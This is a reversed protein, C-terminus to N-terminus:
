VSRIARESIARGYAARYEAARPAWSWDGAMANHVLARWAKRDAFVTLAEELSATFSAADYDDFSFGTGTRAEWDWPVVTDNLGGTRRVVPITGYAMSYMQNLGCPEFRSPMLFFDSGAEILHGLGIDFAKRYGVWEPHQEALATFLDEFEEAGTGVVALQARRSEILPVVSEEFLEFGKQDTLRSVVGLVPVPEAALGLEERLADRNRWKTDISERDYLYPIWLDAAPNWEDGIGNLIGVLDAEREILVGDLGMGQEPTLIERAYTPSVTTVLDAALIGTALANGTGTETPVVLVQRGELGMRPLDKLPFHGQFALNHITLITPVSAWPMGAAVAHLPLMATHFDNAHFVDPVWDLAACAAVCGATFWAYRIHDDGDMPYVAGRGFMEPADILYITARGDGVPGLTSLGVTGLGTVPIGDAVRTIDPAGQLVDYHPLFAAVEDGGRALAAPLWRSVDGLGGVHAYPAMEAALFAIKM